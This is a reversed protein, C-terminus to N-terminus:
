EQPGKKRSPNLAAGLMVTWICVSIFFFPVWMPHKDLLDWLTM